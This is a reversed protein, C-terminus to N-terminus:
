TGTASRRLFANFFISPRRLFPRMMEGTLTSPRVM